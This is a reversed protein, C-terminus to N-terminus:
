SAEQYLWDTKITKESSSKEGYPICVINSNGIMTYEHKKGLKILLVRILHIVPYYRKHIKLDLNLTKHWRNEYLYM